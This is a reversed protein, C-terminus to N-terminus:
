MPLKMWAVASFKGNTAFSLIKDTRSSPRYRWCRRMDGRANKALFDRGFPATDIPKWQSHPCPGADACLHQGSGQSSGEEKM